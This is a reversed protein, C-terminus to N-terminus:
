GSDDPILRVLWWPYGGLPTEILGPKAGTESFSPNAGCTQAIFRPSVVCYDTRAANADFPKGDSWLGRRQAAAAEIASARAATMRALRLMVPGDGDELCAVDNGTLWDPTDPRFDAYAQGDMWVGATEAHGETMRNLRILSDRLAAYPDPTPQADDEYLHEPYPAHPKPPAYLCTFLRQGTLVFRGAREADLPTKPLPLARVAGFLRDAADRLRQRAPPVDAETQTDATRSLREAVILARAAREGDLFSEPEPLAVVAAVIDDAFARLLAM